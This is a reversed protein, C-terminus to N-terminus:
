FTRHPANKMPVSALHVEKLSAKVVRKKAAEKCGWRWNCGMLSVVADRTKERAMKISSMNKRLSYTAVPGTSSTWNLSTERSDQCVAKVASKMLIVMSTRRQIHCILSDNQSSCSSAWCHTTQKCLDTATVWSHHAVVMKMDWLSFHLYITRQSEWWNAMKSSTKNLMTM